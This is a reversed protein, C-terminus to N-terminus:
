CYAVAHGKLRPCEAVNAPLSPSRQCRQKLAAHQLAQKHILMSVSKYARGVGLALGHNALQFDFQNANLNKRAFAHGVDLELALQRISSM